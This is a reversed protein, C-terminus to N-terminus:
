CVGYFSFFNFIQLSEKYFQFALFNQQNLWFKIARKKIFSLAKVILELSCLKRSAFKQPRGTRTALCKVGVATFVAKSNQVKYRCLEVLAACTGFAASAQAHLTKCNAATQGVRVPCAWPAMAAWPAVSPFIGNVAWLRADWIGM